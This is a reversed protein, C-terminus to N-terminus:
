RAMTARQTALKKATGGMAARYLLPIVFLTLATALVLGAVIASAVPSWVVSRGGWGAALSFLGAITTLATILIPVVRRRAAYITAHLVSMGAYLRTNAADIMVIAANVSVGALAVVGYMTFLSLPDRTIALGFVVGMFALPITALIMFPQWYSRFQTGLILYILGVGFLFLSLMADLSEQIDDLEGSFELDITPYQASVDRWREQVQKNVAVTDIIAKDIDAEVTITRRFNYHRIMSKGSGTEQVTLQGLPIRRGDPLAVSERMVDDLSMRDFAKARVRVELKENRHQMSAVIDGDFLLRITRAVDAADLGAQKVAAADLKLRLERKGPSDDDTIDRVAPNEDLIARVQDTAQRLLEYDDGRVKINIPKSTPPGGTLVFFALNMPGPTQLIDERMEDVIEQVERMGPAHPRLTVMVQGYQNGFFPEQATFMQGAVAAMDRAEGPRLHTAVRQEIQRSIRLTEELPTGPPMQVNVYFLRLADAAFFDVKVAGGALLTGALAFLAAITVASVGPHRMARLLLRAYRLRVWHTFRVRLLHVRGRERFNVRAANIHVPLMWYAELLSLLLATTVVFPIIFMFKGLIGPMLMLPLFAAITTLVSSTVPAFVEGLADVAAHMTQAGRLLRYYIAEVVVVADDVLMGLAIVVGLLVPENLTQGTINLVLFTGALTFPIGIGIFAAIHWGLFVWTVLAVLLLGVLFNNQMLSISHRTPATQDDLLVLKVGLPVLSVNKQALYEKIEDVLDLTNVHARKSVALMVAPRGQYHVLQEAKRRARSVDALAGIPIEGQATAMPLGALYAPDADTGIVRVLWTENGIRTDGAAVDRFNASITDALQTPTIGRAALREPFFDVHLEPERLGAPDVTDIGRIRELDEKINLAAHRLTEDDASGSVVLTATPFSNATTIELILPDEAADPLEAAAKNQVERRLDNLRKDFTRENIDNFRVLISSIGERSNSSVFRTDPVKQIGEELPDTVLKEVDEASAGPLTTLVSIWNFNIEPDQSRPMQLYALSGVVLIVVFTINALVHNELIKRLM